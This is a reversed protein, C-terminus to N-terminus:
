VSTTDLALARHTATTATMTSVAQEDEGGSDLGGVALEAAELENVVFALPDTDSRLAAM